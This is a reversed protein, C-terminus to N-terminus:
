PYEGTTYVVEALIRLLMETLAMTIWRPRPRLSVTQPLIRKVFLNIHQIKDNSFPCFYIASEYSV